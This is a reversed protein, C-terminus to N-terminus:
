WIVLALKCVVFNKLKEFAYAFAREPFVPFLIVLKPKEGYAFYLLHFLLSLYAAAEGM